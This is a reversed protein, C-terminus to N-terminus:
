PLLNFNSKSMVDSDSRWLAPFSNYQAQIKLNLKCIFYSRRILIKNHLKSNIERHSSRFMTQLNKLRSGDDYISQLNVSITWGEQTEHM